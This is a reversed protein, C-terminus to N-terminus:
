STLWDKAENESGFSKTNKDGTFLLYSSLLINKIGEIGILATREIKITGIEKGAKKVEDMFKSSLFVNTFNSLTLVKSSSSQVIKIQEQLIKLLEDDNKSGRYDIYLIKKGKHEIWSIAM